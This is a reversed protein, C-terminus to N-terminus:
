TVMAVMVKHLEDSFLIYKMLLYYIENLMLSTSLRDIHTLSFFNCAFEPFKNFVGRIYVM